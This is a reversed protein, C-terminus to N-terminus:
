DGRLTFIGGGKEDLRKGSRRKVRRFKKQYLAAMGKVFDESGVAVGTAFARVRVDLMERRTLRGERKKVAEVEERPIGKKAVVVKLEREGKEGEVLRTELREVGDGYLWCRYAPAGREEWADQAVGVVKCLGRKARRSGRVAEGYGSWEYDKPDKVLDARVPNLDIYAAMTELAEGNEVVVSKFRDMWLTGRRDNQKNYWRSFREKLEKVFLSLDCFRDKFRQLLEQVDKEFGRDRLGSIERRLQRLYAKSYVISLHELLREEGGEGDFRKLWKEQEPVKLLIHFHNGMVAYTLIEVGAFRAMRWMMRRFAEKELRGFFHEGSVTRSMVHYCASRGKVAFRKRGSVGKARRIQALNRGTKMEALQLPTWERVSELDKQKSPKENM